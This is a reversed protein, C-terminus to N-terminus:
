PIEKRVLNVSGEFHHMSGSDTVLKHEFYVDKVSIASAWFHTDHIFGYRPNLAPDTAVIVNIRFVQSM